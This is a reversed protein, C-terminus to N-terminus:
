AQCSTALSDDMVVLYLGHASAVGVRNGGTGEHDRPEDTVIGCIGGVGRWLM